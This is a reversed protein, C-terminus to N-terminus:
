NHSLMYSRNCSVRSVARYLLTKFDLLGPDLSSNRKFLFDFFKGSYVFYLKIILFSRLSRLELPLMRAELSLMAARQTMASVDNKENLQRGNSKGPDLGSGSGYFRVFYFHV